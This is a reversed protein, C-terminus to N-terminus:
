GSITILQQLFSVYQTFSCVLARASIICCIHRHGLSSWLSFLQWQIWDLSYGICLDSRLDSRIYRSAYISREKNWCNSKKSLRRASRKLLVCRLGRWLGWCYYFGEESWPLRSFSLGFRPPESIFKPAPGCRLMKLIDLFASWTSSYDGREGDQEGDIWARAFFM